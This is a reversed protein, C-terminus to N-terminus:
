DSRFRRARRWSHYLPLLTEVQMLRRFLERYTESGTFMGWLIRAHNDHSERSATEARLVEIWAHSLAPMGLVWTWFRFLIRGYVNDRSIERCLPQYGAHFSRRSIGLHLATHAAQKATSFASGIGDKYLRTVAADGVAVWRDGYYRGACSVAIRPTCGCLSDGLSRFDQGLGHAEIFESIADTALGQGLLSINVYHGKPILAGFILGEPKQFYASVRDEPWSDPLQFEDQAMIESRPPQYGFTEGLPSHSNIGTALVVLEVPFTERATYIVPGQDWRVDTVRSPIHQAGLSCAQALLFQDFSSVSGHKQLRPGGGRYISVIRSEPDPQNIQVMEHNLHISYAKIDTQIVEDPLSIGITDLDNLMRASLIGACRNCGEPGPMHFKRPEFILVELPLGRDAGGRLLHLATFSGAPGGGIIGIRDGEKLRISV